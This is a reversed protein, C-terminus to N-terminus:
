FVLFVRYRYRKVAVWDLNTLSWAQLLIVISEIQAYTKDTIEIKRPYKEWDVYRENKM